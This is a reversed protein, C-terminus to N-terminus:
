PNSAPATEASKASLQDKAKAAKESRFATEFIEALKDLATAAFLGSLAAFAYVAILNLNAIASGNGSTGQPTLLGVRMIMYVICALGAGTFPTSIYYLLWSRKLQRNGVFMALSRLFHLSGGLAGLLIVMALVSSETAGDRFARVAAIAPEHVESDIDIVAAGAEADKGAEASKAVAPAGPATNDKGPAPEPAAGFVAPTLTPKSTDAEPKGPTGAATSKVTAAPSGGLTAPRVNPAKGQAEEWATLKAVATQMTGATDVGTARGWRQYIAILLLVTLALSAASWLLIARSSAYESYMIHRPDMPGDLDAAIHLSDRVQLLQEHIENQKEPSSQTWDQTKVNGNADVLAATDIKTVDITKARARVADGMGGILTQLGKIEALLEQIAKAEIAAM